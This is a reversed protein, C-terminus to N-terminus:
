LCIKQELCQAAALYALEFVQKTLDVVVLMTEHVLNLAVDFGTQVTETLVQRLGAQADNRVM